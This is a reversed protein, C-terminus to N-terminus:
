SVFKNDSRHYCFKSLRNGSYVLIDDNDNTGLIASPAKKDDGKRRLVKFNPLSMPTEFTIM